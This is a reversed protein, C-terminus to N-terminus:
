LCNWILLICVSTNIFLM